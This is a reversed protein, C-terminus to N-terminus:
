TSAGTTAVARQALGIAGGPRQVFVDAAACRLRPNRAPARRVHPCMRGPLAPARGRQFEADPAPVGRCAPRRHAVAVPRGVRRPRRGAPPSRGPQVPCGAGLGRGCHPEVVRRRRRGLRECQRREADRACRCRPRLPGQGRGRGRGRRAVPTGAAKRDRCGPGLPRARRGVRAGAGPHFAVARMEGALPLHLRRVGAGVDWIDLHDRSGAGRAGPESAVVAFSRGEPGLDWAGVQTDLRFRGLPAGDAIRWVRIESGDAARNGIKVRTARATGRADMVFDDPRDVDLAIVPAADGTRWVRVQRHDASRAAAFTSRIEPDQVERSTLSLAPILLNSVRAIWLRPNASTVAVSRGDGSFALATPHFGAAESWALLRGERSWLLLSGARDVKAVAGGDPRFAVAAVERGHWVEAIRDGPALRWILTNGAMDASAALDGAPSFAAVEVPADHAARLRERGSPLEWLRATQDAASTALSTGDPGFAVAHVPAGHVVRVLEEGTAVVWVRATGDRGATDVFAGDRSFAVGDIWVAPGVAKVASREHTVQLVRHADAVRWVTATNGSATVFHAGDASFALALGSEGSQWRGREGGAAADSLSVEGDTSLCALLTGDPSFAAPRVEEGHLVRRLRQGSRADWLIATGGAGGPDFAIATVEADVGAAKCAFGSGLTTVCGGARADHAIAGIPKHAEVGLVAVTGDDRGAALTRGDPSFALARVRGRMSDPGTYPYGRVPRPLLALADRLAENGDFSSHLDTSAIALLAALPLREPYQTRIAVSQAALQRALAIRGQRVAVAREIEAVRREGEAIRRADDAIQRQELAVATQAEAVRRQEV